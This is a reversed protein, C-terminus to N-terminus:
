SLRRCTSVLASETKAGATIAAPNAESVGVAPIKRPVIFAASEGRRTQVVFFTKNQSPRYTPIKVGALRRRGAHRGLGGCEHGTM